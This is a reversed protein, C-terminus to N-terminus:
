GPQASRIPTAGSSTRRGKKDRPRGTGSVAMRCRPDTSSTVLDDNVAGGPDSLSPQYRNDGGRPLGGLKGDGARGTLSGSSEAARGGRRAASRDYRGRKPSAPNGQNLQTFVQSNGGLGDIQAAAQLWAGDLGHPTGFAQLMVLVEGHSNYQSVAFALLDAM